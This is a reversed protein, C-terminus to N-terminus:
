KACAMPTAASIAAAAAFFLGRQLSTADRCISNMILGVLVLNVGQIAGLLVHRRSVGWWSFASYFPLFALPNFYSHFIQAPAADIDMCDQMFAYASYYRYNLQDYNVDQGRSFAFLASVLM